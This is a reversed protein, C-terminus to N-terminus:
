ERDEATASDRRRAFLVVALLAAGVGGVVVAGIVAGSLGGDDTSSSGGTVPEINLYNDVGYQILLVGGEPQPVFGTFRDSRYAEIISTYATVMYPVDEYLIQQMRQVMEARKADDVESHQQTYLRDYEENCYWSDSSGGRADCTMVELISDPDPEVYWGWQFLDFEGDLIINTLKGSEALLVESEIGVDALWESYFEMTEKSYESDSRAHLRLSIPEGTDPMTRIGDTGREYGADDLMQNATDLDFEYEDEPPWFYTDYFPPIISVGPEGAGDYVKDVIEDNDVTYALARRFEPDLLAPHGDGIPEDTDTDTDVAGTNFAIEEFGPSVGNNTTIADEDALAEASSVQIDEVFDIEGTILAQIMLDETNFVRFVVEDINPAGQWYDENAELRYISTGAKGEVVKFPGSGVVDPPENSFSKVEEESIKSWIHEPVIPIPLLPLVANPESLELVVTTDDPATVTEVSGLYSGYTVAEPGGDLIREYTYAIDSATLPEGDWFTVGERITFTWTLGDSTSEWSEALGTPVPAIDSPRYGIMYDYTLSWLEYSEAEFGTFPNLSDAENLWGVTFTM